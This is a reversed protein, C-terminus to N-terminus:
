VWRKTNLTNLTETQSLVATGMQVCVLQTTTECAKTSTITKGEQKEIIVKFPRTTDGITLCASFFMSRHPALLNESAYCM